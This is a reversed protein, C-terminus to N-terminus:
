LISDCGLVLSAFQVLCLLISIPLSYSVAHLNDVHSSLEVFLRKTGSFWNRQERGLKFRCFTSPSVLASILTSPVDGAGVQSSSSCRAALSGLVLGRDVVILALCSQVV